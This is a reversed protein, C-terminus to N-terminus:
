AVTAVAPELKHKIRQLANDVAKTHRALMEAIEGYSHGAAFLDLVEVELPSLRNEVLSRFGGLSEAEIVADAPDTEHQDPLVAELGREETGEDGAGALPVAVNLAHHKHRTAAKIASIIQRTICLEAFARFPTDQQCDFDRVAKFLGILAEQEVDAADGGMLFYGRSKARAFRRYRDVVVELAARDGHQFRAALERDSLSILSTRRPM